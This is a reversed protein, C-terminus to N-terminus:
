TGAHGFVNGPDYRRGLERLREYGEAGYAALLQDARACRGILSPYSADLADPRMTDAFGDV